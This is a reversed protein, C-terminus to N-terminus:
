LHMLQPAVEPHLQAVLPSAAVLGDASAQPAAM